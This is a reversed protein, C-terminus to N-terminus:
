TTFSLPANENDLELKGGTVPLEIVLVSRKRERGVTRSRPLVVRRSRKSQPIPQGEIGTVRLQVQIGHAPQCEERADLGRLELGTVVRNVNTVYVGGVRAQAKANAM